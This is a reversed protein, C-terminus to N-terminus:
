MKVLIMRLIKVCRRGLRRILPLHPARPNCTCRFNVVAKRLDNELNSFPLHLDFCFRMFSVNRHDEDTDKRNRESFRDYNVNLGEIKSLIGAPGPFRRHLSTSMRNKTGTSCENGNKNVSNLVPRENEVLITKKFIDTCSDDTTGRSGNQANENQM